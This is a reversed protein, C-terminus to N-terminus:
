SIVAENTIPISASLHAPYAKSLYIKSYFLSHTILILSGPVPSHVIVPSFHYTQYFCPPCIGWIIVMSSSCCFCEQQPVFFCQLRSSISSEELEWVVNGDHWFSQTGLHNWDARINSFCISESNSQFSIFRYIYPLKLLWKSLLKM